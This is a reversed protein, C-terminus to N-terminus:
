GNGLLKIKGPIKLKLNLIRIYIRTYEGKLALGKPGLGFLPSDSTTTL